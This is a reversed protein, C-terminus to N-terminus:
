DKAAELLAAETYRHPVRRRHAPGFLGRPLIETVPDERLGFRAYGRLVEICRGPSSIQTGM